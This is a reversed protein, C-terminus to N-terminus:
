ASLLWQQLAKQFEPYTSLNNHAGGPITIFADSSKLVEKLRLASAYPVVRDRTGHFILIPIRTQSVHQHNPFVLSFQVPLVSRGLHSALMGQLTDFPTELILCRAPVRASLYTAMGSGLSRGYLVIDQVPFRNKVWNYMLEADSFLRQEDPQGTSKGYGRYDPVFFDYGNETFPQHMAGWRQLNSRNGHFYLVVGRKQPKQSAFYLANLKCGDATTFWHEEFPHDFQFQHGAKLKVPQFLLKKLVYDTLNM